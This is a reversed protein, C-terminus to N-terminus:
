GTALSAPAPAATRGSRVLVISAALTWALYLLFAPGFSSDIFCANVALSAATVAAGIGLGRPLLGSSIVLVATAAFFLALPYLSVTFAADGFSVFAKETPSGPVLDREAIEPVTSVLKIERRRDRAPQDLLERAARRRPAPRGLEVLQRRSLEVHELQETPAQGGGLRRSLEEDAVRRHLCVNRPDEGLEIEV